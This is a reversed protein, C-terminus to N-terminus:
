FMKNGFGGKKGTNVIFILQRPYYPKLNIIFYQM